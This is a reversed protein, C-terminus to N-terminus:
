DAKKNPNPKPKYKKNKDGRKENQAADYTEGARRKTHKDYTSKRKKTRHVFALVLILGVLATVPNISLYLTSLLVISAFVVLYKISAAM